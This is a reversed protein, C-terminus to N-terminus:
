GYYGYYEEGYWDQWVEHALEARGAAKGTEFALVLPNTSETDVRVADDDIIAKIKEYLEQSAIM